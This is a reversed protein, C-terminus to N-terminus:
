LAQLKQWLDRVGEHHPELKMLTQCYNRAQDFERIMAYAVSINFLAEPDQSNLQLAKQLYPIGANPKDENVLISGLWKNAIATEEIKLSRRFIDEAQAFKQQELYILGLRLYPSVNYPTGKILARYELAAQELDRTRAYYEALEVHANEWSKKEKVVELAIEQAKNEPRYSRWFDEAQKSNFPWGAMLIQTKLHGVERDLETVDISNWYEQETRVSASDWDSAVFGNKEMAACFAKSMLFYGRLNPHLHELMLNRGILGHPSVSEFIAEMPVVPAKFESAAEHIAANFDETARFRLADLDKARYYLAKAEDLRGLAELCQAMRFSLEAVGDDIEEAKRYASLAESYSKNEYLENATQYFDDWAKRDTEDGFVSEFPPQHHINSILESILVRIDNKKAIGFVDRLNAQFIERAKFYERSKYAIQKRGVVREMLTAHEAVERNTPGIQSRVWGIVNKLLYFVKLHQLKLYFNVFNRFQGLAETSAVGLAGYFENHGAYILFADPQYEVLEDAFDLISYSNIAPMALNFVEIHRDPFSDELRTRLMRSFAANHNFPYGAASSGGLVFIRYGNKPKKKLIADYSIAPTIENVFFYRRGVSANTIWYREDNLFTTFIDLNPGYGFLRLIIELLVFFLVPLFIAIFRFARQKAPNGASHQSNLYRKVLKEDTNIRKALESISRSHHNKEIFNKQKETLKEMIDILNFLSRQAALFFVQCGLM